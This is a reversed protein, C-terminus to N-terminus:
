QSKMFKVIAEHEFINDIEILDSEGTEMKM